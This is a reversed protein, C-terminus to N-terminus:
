GRSAVCLAMGFGLVLLGTMAGLIIGVYPKSHSSEKNTSSSSSPELEITIDTEPIDEESQDVETEAVKCRTLDKVQFCRHSALIGV